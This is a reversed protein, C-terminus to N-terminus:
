QEDEMEYDQCEQPAKYNSGMLLSANGVSNRARCATESRDIDACAVLAAVTHSATGDCALKRRAPLMPTKGYAGFIYHRWSLEREDGFPALVEDGDQITDVGDSGLFRYWAMIPTHSRDNTDAKDKFVVALAKM